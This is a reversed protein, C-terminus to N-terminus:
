LSEVSLLFSKKRAYRSLFWLFSLAVRRNVDWGDWEWEGMVRSIAVAFGNVTECGFGCLNLRVFPFILNQEYMQEHKINASQWICKVQAVSKKEVFYFLYLQLDIQRKFPESSLVYWRPPWFAFLPWVQKIIVYFM